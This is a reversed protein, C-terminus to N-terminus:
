PKLAFHNTSRMSTARFQSQLTPSRRILWAQLAKDAKAQDLITLSDKKVPERDFSTNDGSLGTKNNQLFFLGAITLAFVIGPLTPMRFGQKYAPDKRAIWTFLLLAMVGVILLVLWDWLMIEHFSRYAKYACWSGLSLLCIMRETRTM